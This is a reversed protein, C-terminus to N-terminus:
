REIERFIIDVFFAECDPCFPSAELGLTWGILIL